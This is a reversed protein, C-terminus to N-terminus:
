CLYVSFGSSDVEVGSSSNAEQLEIGPGEVAQSLFLDDSESDSCGM